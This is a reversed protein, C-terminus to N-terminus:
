WEGCEFNEVFLLSDPKVGIDEFNSIYDLTIPFPESLIHFGNNTEQILIGERNFDELMSKIAGIDTNKDDVDLLYLGRGSKSSPKMLASYWVKDIKKMRDYNIVKHSTEEAIHNFVKQVEWFAKRVDRPNVSIYLYFNKSTGDDEEFNVINNVIRDYKHRIENENRIIERFIREQKTTISNNKKRSIALLVYVDWPNKFKCHQELLKLPEMRNKKM